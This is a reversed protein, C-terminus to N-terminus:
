LETCKCKVLVEDDIWDEIPGNCNSQNEYYEGEGNCLDCNEIKHEALNTNPQHSM